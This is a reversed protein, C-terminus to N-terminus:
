KEKRTHLITLIVVGSIHHHNEDYFLMESGAVVPQLQWRPSDIILERLSLDRNTKMKILVIDGDNPIENPDIIFLTGFPFRPQMSPRSELAFADNSLSLQEGLILPHWDNWSTLDIDNLSNMSTAIKWDLVPIFRPTSKSMLAISKSNNDGILSDVSINFYDAILKLTSIRPDSTEGSALRRVTMVPINLSQAVDNESICHETLLMRLNKAIKKLQYEDIEIETVTNMLMNVM